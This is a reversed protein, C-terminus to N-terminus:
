GFVRLAWLMLLSVGFAVVLLYFQAFGTQFLRLAMGFGQSVVGFGNVFVGDVIKDDFWRDFRAVLRSVRGFGDVIGQDLVNYDSWALARAPIDVFARILSLYVEDAVRRGLYDYLGSFRRAVSAPPPTNKRYMLFALGAGAALATLSVYMVLHGEHHAGGEAAPIWTSFPWVFTFFLGAV